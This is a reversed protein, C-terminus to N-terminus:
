PAHKSETPALVLDIHAFGSRELANKLHQYAGFHARRDCFLLPARGRARARWFSLLQPLEDASVPCRNIQYTNDSCLRIELVDSRSPHLPKTEAGREALQIHELELLPAILIFCILVVFVVDILPTLNLDTSDRDADFSSRRRGIM